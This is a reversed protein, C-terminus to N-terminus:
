APVGTRRGPGSSRPAIARCRDVIQRLIFETVQDPTCGETNVTLHAQRYWPLRATWRDLLRARDALVPRIPGGPQDACRSVLVDLPADLFILLSDPLSALLDRTEPRELAGGGLALVLRDQAIGARITAAELDRFASEGQTEFIAAVTQGTEAELRHDSDAFDWGLREALLRGVTTKGAGMFGTIFIRTISAPLPSLGPTHRSM